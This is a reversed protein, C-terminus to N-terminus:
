DNDIILKGDIFLIAGDDSHLRFNYQGATAVILKARADIAFWEFLNPIGPFGNTFDRVPVDFNTMCIKTAYTGNAFEKALSEAGSKLKFVKATIPQEASAVDNEKCNQFPDGPNSIPPPTANVSPSETPSPTATAAAKAVAEQNANAKPTPTRPPPKNYGSNYGGADTCGTFIAFSTLLFVKMM